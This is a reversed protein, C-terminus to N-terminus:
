AGARRRYIEIGDVITERVYDKTILRALVPFRSIPYPAMDTLHFLVTLLAVLAAGGKGSV